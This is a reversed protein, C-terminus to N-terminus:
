LQSLYLAADYCAYRHYWCPLRVVLSVYYPNSFRPAVSRFNDLLKDVESECRRLEAAAAELEKKALLHEEFIRDLVSLIDPM